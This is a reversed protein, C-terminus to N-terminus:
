KTIAMQINRIMKLIEDNMRDKGFDVPMFESGSFQNALYRKNRDEGELTCTLGIEEMYEGITLGERDFAANAKVLEFNRDSVNITNLEIWHDDTEWKRKIIANLIGEILLKPSRLTSRIYTDANEAAINGGLSGVKGIGLMEPPVGFVGCVVAEICSNMYSLFSAEVQKDQMPHLTISSEKDSSSLFLVKSEEGQAQKEIQLKAKELEKEDVPGSVMAVYKINTGKFFSVNYLDVKGIAYAPTFARMIPPLGYYPRYVKHYIPSYILEHAQNELGPNKTSVKGTNKDVYGEYGYRKFYTYKNPQGASIDIFVPYDTKELAFLKHPQINISPIHSLGGISGDPLPLVEICGRSTSLRNDIFLKCVEIPTEGMFNKTNMWTEIELALDTSAGEITHIVFGNDCVDQSIQIVCKNIWPISDELKLLRTDSIVPPSIFGIRSVKKLDKENYYKTEKYLDHWTDIKSKKTRLNKFLRELM